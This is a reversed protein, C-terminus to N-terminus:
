GYNEPPIDFNEKHQAPAIGASVAAVNIKGCGAASLAHACEIVTSGTTIIDDVLLINRNYVTGAAVVKFVGSVNARRQEKALKTQSPNDKVKLLVATALPVDLLKALERALLNAQNYNRQKQKRWHMPVPVILEVPHHVLQPQLMEALLCAFGVAINRQGRYKFQHLREQLSGEYPGLARAFGFVPPAECCDSCVTGHILFRGCHVCVNYQTRLYAIDRRCVNCVPQKEHTKGDCFSCQGKHGYLLDVFGDLMQRWDM